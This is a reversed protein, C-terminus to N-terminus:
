ALKGHMRPRTANFEMKHKVERDLDIGLAGALDGVRIIIDALESPFGSPKGVLGWDATKMRDKRADELAESVESHILALKLGIVDIPMKALDYDGDWFGHKKSNNHAEKAMDNLNMNEVKQQKKDQFNDIRGRQIRAGARKWQIGVNQYLCHKGRDSLVKKGQFSETGCKKRKDNQGHFKGQRDRSFSPIIPLM